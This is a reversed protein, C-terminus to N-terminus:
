MPCYEAGGNDNISTDIWTKYFAVDAYVGYLGGQACGIGFSVAGALYHQGNVDVTMPGGSDGQCSDRGEEGGACIMGSVIDIGQQSMAAQCNPIGILPLSIEQLINPQSGGSSLTGWGYVWSFGSFQQNLNPMCVPTYIDLDVKSTMKILAIDNENTNYNYSPHIVVKDANKVIRITTDDLVSKDHDGLVITFDTPFIEQIGNDYFCHAATVLWEASILSAGCGYNSGAGTTSYFSIAAMWPWENVEAELGGVIRTDKNETGPKKKGCM